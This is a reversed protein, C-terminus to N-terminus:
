LLIKLCNKMHSCLKKKNLLIKATRQVNLASLCKLRCTSNYVCFSANKITIPIEDVSYMRKSLRSIKLVNYELGHGDYIELNIESKKLTKQYLKM